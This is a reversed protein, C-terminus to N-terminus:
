HFIICTFIPSHHSPLTFPLLSIHDFVSLRSTHRPLPGIHILRGRFFLPMVHCARAVIPPLGLFATYVFLTLGRWKVVDGHRNCDPCKVDQKGKYEVKRSEDIKMQTSEQRM